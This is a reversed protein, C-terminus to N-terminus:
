PFIIFHGGTINELVGSTINTKYKKDITASAKLVADFAKAQSGPNQAFHRAWRTGSGAVTGVPMTFGASKLEKRLKAHFEQHVSTPLHVRVQGTKVRRPCKLVPSV